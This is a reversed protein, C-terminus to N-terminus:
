ASKSAADVADAMAGMNKFKWSYSVKGDYALSDGGMVSEVEEGREIWASVLGVEKAPVHDHHLSQATHLIDEKRVGLDKDCHEILYRFNNLNPKYSGIEQATYIADFPIGVLQKELTRQFSDRDVNSLIVLKYHKHLRKLADLTDPYVSWDGVSSGFKVRDEESAELGFEGALSAFATKLIDRYLDQPAAAQAKSEHSGFSRLLSLRDNKCPHSDPLQQALPQLARYIGTEWDVLTGYCDFTLCKFSTIPRTTTM